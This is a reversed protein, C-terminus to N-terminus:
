QKYGRSRMLTQRTGFVLISSVGIGMLTEDRDGIAQTAVL